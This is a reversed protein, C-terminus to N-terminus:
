SRMIAPGWMNLTYPEHKWEKVPRDHIVEL